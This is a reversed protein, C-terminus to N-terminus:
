PDRPVVKDIVSATAMAVRIGGCRGAVHFSHIFGRSNEVVAPCSTQIIVVPLLPNMVTTASGPSIPVDGLQIGGLHWPM